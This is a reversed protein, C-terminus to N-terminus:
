IKFYKKFHDLEMTRLRERNWSALEYGHPASYERYLFVFDPDEFTARVFNPITNNKIAEIFEHESMNLITNMKENRNLCLEVKEHPLVNNMIFVERSTQSLQIRHHYARENGHPYNTDRFMIKFDDDGPQALPFKPLWDFNLCEIFQTIDMDMIEKIADQRITMNTKKESLKEPTEEKDCSNLFPDELEQSIDIIKYDKPESTLHHILHNIMFTHRTVQSLQNRHQYAREFGATHNSDRL